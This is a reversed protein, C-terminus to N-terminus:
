KPKREEKRRWFSTKKECIFEFISFPSNSAKTNMGLQCEENYVFVLVDGNRRLIVSGYCQCCIQSINQDRMVEVFTEQVEEETKVGLQNYYNSGCAILRSDQTYILSHEIGGSILKVRIESSVLKPIPSIEDYIEGDGFQGKSNGGFAYLEGNEKKKPNNTSFFCPFSFPFGLYIFSHNM